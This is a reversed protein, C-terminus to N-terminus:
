SKALKVMSTKAVSPLLFKNSILLATGRSCQVRMSTFIQQTDLLVVRLNINLMEMISKAKHHARSFKTTSVQIRRYSIRPRGILWQGIRAVRM